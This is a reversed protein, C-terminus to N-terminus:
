NFYVAIAPQAPVVIVDDQWKFDYDDEHAESAPSGPPPQEIASAEPDGVHPSRRQYRQAHFATRCEASCFRQPKGGSGARPAFPKSCQECFVASEAAEISGFPLTENM